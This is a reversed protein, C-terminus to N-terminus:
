AWEKFLVEKSIFLPDVKGEEYHHLVTLGEWWDCASTNHAMYEPWHDLLCGVTIGEVRRGGTPSNPDIRAVAMINRMHTHGFVITSQALAAARAAVYQGGLPKGTRPQLPAHTFSTGHINTYDKYDVFEWGDEVAGVLDPGKFMGDLVPQLEVYRRVRDEHNGHVWVLHPKYKRKKKSRAKGWEDYLPAMLRQYAIKGSELDHSLRRGEQILPRGHNHFSISDLSMFDGIQVVHEPQQEIIFNGIADYRRKDVEPDDHTDPIVLTREIEM